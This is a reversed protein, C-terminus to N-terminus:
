RRWLSAQTLAESASAIPAGYLSRHENQRAEADITALSHLAQVTGARKHAQWRFNYYDGYGTGGPGFAQRRGLHIDDFLSRAQEITTHLQASANVSPDDKLTNYRDILMKATSKEGEFARWFTKPYLMNPNDPLKPPTVTWTNKRLDYAAYPHINRIDEAGPNIYYTVEYVQGNINTQATTPWLNTKMDDTMQGDLDVEPLGQYKPNTRYFQVHDIGILVDLDGNGRDGAWQYSIGSGALWVNAWSEAKSYRSHCYTFFTDLLHKRVAPKLHTGDFLHPDLTQQPTSFYGSAGHAISPQEAHSIEDRLAGYPTGMRYDM